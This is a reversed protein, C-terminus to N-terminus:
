NETKNGRIAEVAKEKEKLLEKLKRLREERATLAETFAVPKKDEESKATSTQNSTDICLEPDPFTESISSNKATSKNANSNASSKLSSSDVVSTTIISNRVNSKSGDNKHVSACPITPSVVEKDCSKKPARNASNLVITQNSPSIEPKQQKPHRYDHDLQVTSPTTVTTKMLHESWDDLPEQKIKIVPPVNESNVVKVSPEVVLTPKQPPATVNATTTITVVPTTGIVDSNVVYAKHQFQSGEFPILVNKGDIKLLYFKSKETTSVKNVSGSLGSSLKDFVKTSTTTTTFSQSVVSHTPQIRGHILQQPAGSMASFSTTGVNSTGQSVGIVSLSIANTHRVASHAVNHIPVPKFTIAQTIPSTSPFVKEVIPNRIGGGALSGITNSSTIPAMGRLLSKTVTVRLANQNVSPTTILPVIPLLSNSSAFLSTNGKPLVSEQPLSATMNLTQQLYKPHVLSQANGAGKMTVAIPAVTVPLPQCHSLLSTSSKAASLLVPMGTPHMIYKLGQHTKVLIPAANTQSQSTQSYGTSSIPAKSRCNNLNRVSSKLTTQTSAGFSNPLTMAVLKVNKTTQAIPYTSNVNPKTSSDNLSSNFSSSTNPKSLLIDAIVSGENPMEQILVGDEERKNSHMAVPKKPIAHTSPTFSKSKRKSKRSKTDESDVKFCTVSEEEPNEIVISSSRKSRKPPVDHKSVKHKMKMLITDHVLKKLENNTKEVCLQENIETKDVAFDTLYKPNRKCVRGSVSSTVQSKLISEVNSMPKSKLKKVKRNHSRKIAIQKRLVLADLAHQNWDKWEAQRKVREGDGPNTEYQLSHDQKNMISVLSRFDKPVKTVTRRVRKMHTVNSKNCESIALDNRNIISKLSKMNSPKNRKSYGAKKQELYLHYDMQKSPTKVNFVDKGSKLRRIFYVKKCMNTCDSFVRKFKRFSISSKGGLHKEISKLVIYSPAISRCATRSVKDSIIICM